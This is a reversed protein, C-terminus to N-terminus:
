AAFASAEQRTRTLASIARVTALSRFFSRKRVATARVLLARVRFRAQAYARGPMACARAARRWSPAFAPLRLMARIRSRSNSEWLACANSITTKSKTTNRSGRLLRRVFPLRTMWLFREFRPFAGSVPAVVFRALRMSTKRSFLPGGVAQVITRAHGRACCSAGKDLRTESPTM